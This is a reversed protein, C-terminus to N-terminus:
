SHIFFKSKLCVFMSQFCSLIYKCRKAFTIMKETRAVTGPAHRLSTEEYSYPDDGQIGSTQADHNNWAANRMIHEVPPIKTVDRPSIRSVNPAHSMKLKNLIMYKISEIRLAKQHERLQCSPCVHQTSTTSNNSPDEYERSYSSYSSPYSSEELVSTSPSPEAAPTPEAPMQVTRQYEHEHHRRGRHPVASNTLNIFCLFLIATVFHLSIQCYTSVQM